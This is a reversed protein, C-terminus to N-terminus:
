HKILVKQSSVNGDPLTARLMYVGEALRRVDLTAHAQTTTTTQQVRGLADVLSLTTTGKTPVLDVQLQAGTPNPYVRVANQKTSSAGTGLATNAGRGFFCAVFDLGTTSYTDSLCQGGAATNVVTVDVRATGTIDSAHDFSVSPTFQASGTITKTELFNNGDYLKWVTFRNNNTPCPGDASATFSCGPTSGGSNAIIFSCGTVPGSVGITKTVIGGSCTGAQVSVTASGTGPTVGISATGQGSVINWGSGSITWNLTQGVPPNSLTLTTTGTAAVCTQPIQNQGAGTGPVLQRGVYLISTQTGFCATPGGVGIITVNGTATTGLNSITISQSSGNGTISTSSLTGVSTSLTYNVGTQTALSFSASTTGIPVCSPFGTINNGLNPAVTVSITTKDTPASNCRGVQVTIDFSGTLLSSPNGDENGKVVATAGSVDLTVASGLDPGSTYQATWTYSDTGIGTQIQTDTSILNPSVSYVVSPNNAPVCTPGKVTYASKPFTKYFETVVTARSRVPYTCTITSGGCTIPGTTTGTNIYYEVTVRLKGYGSPYFQVTTGNLPPTSVLTHDGELRWNIDTAGSGQADFYLTQVTSSSTPICTFAPNGTPLPAIPDSVTSGLRIVQAQAPAGLSCVLATVAAVRLVMKTLLHM